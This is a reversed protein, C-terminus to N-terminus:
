YCKFHDGQRFGVMKLAASTVERGGGFFAGIRYPNEDLFDGFRTIYRQPVFKGGKNSESVSFLEMAWSLDM